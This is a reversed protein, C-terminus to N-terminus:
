RVERGAAARRELIRSRGDALRGVRGQAARQVGGRDRGDHARHLRHLGCQARVPEACGGSGPLWSKVQTVDVGGLTRGSVRDLRHGALKAMQRYSVPTRLRLMTTTLPTCSLGPRPARGPRLADRATWVGVAAEERGPAATPGPDVAALHAAGIAAPGM